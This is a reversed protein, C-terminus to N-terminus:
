PRLTNIEFLAIGRRRAANAFVATNDSEGRMPDPGEWLVIACITELATEALISAEELVTENVATFAQDGGGTDLVILDGAADAEAVLADFRPGWDGPRDTVSEIRFQELNPGPLVIRRRLGLDRAASLAVLDAGCAASAVLANVGMRKLESVLVRQIRPVRDLPFAPQASEADIRRGAVAAIM